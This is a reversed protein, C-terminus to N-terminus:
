PTKTRADGATRPRPDPRRHGTGARGPRDSSGLDTRTAARWAGRQWWWMKKETGPM